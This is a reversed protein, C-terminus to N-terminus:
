TLEEESRPTTKSPREVPLNTPLRVESPQETPLNTPM